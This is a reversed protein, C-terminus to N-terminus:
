YYMSKETGFIWYYLGFSTMIIKMLEVVVTHSYDFLEIIGDPDSDM